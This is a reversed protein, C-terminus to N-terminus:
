KAFSENFIINQRFSVILSKNPCYEYISEYTALSATIKNMRINYRVRQFKGGIKLEYLMKFM